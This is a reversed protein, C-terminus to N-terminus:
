LIKRSLRIDNESKAHGSRGDNVTKRDFFRNNGRLSSNERPKLSHDNKISSTREISGELINGM